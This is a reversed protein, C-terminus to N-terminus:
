LAAFLADAESQLASEGLVQAALWASEPLMRERVYRATTRVLRADPAAPAARELRSWAAGFAVLGTLRMYPAAQLGPADSATLV